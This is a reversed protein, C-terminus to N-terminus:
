IKKNVNNGTFRFRNTIGILVVEYQELDNTCAIRNQYCNRSKDPHYKKSM